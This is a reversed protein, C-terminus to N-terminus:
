RMRLALKGLHHKGLDRHAQPADELPYFRAEVHFPGQSILANLRDFAEPSAEGDYAEVTVGRTAHPEPEVGNPYAIRSGKKMQALAADLGRGSAVILAADLGEPAFRRLPDVIAGHKGDV